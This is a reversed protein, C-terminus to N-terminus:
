YSDCFNTKIHMEKILISLHIMFPHKVFRADITYSFNM